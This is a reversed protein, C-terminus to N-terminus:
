PLPTRCHVVVCDLHTSLGVFALTRAGTHSVTPCSLTNSTHITSARGSLQRSEMGTPQISMRANEIMLRRSEKDRRKQVQLAMKMGLQILVYMSPALYYGLVVGTLEQESSVSGFDWGSWAYVQEEVLWLLTWVATAIGYRSILQLREEELQRNDRTLRLYRVYSSLTFVEYSLLIVANLISFANAAALYTPWEPTNLFNYCAYLVVQFTELFPFIFLATRIMRCLAPFMSQVVFWGRNWSFHLMLVKFTAMFISSLIYSTIYLSPDSNVWYQAIFLASGANCMILGSLFANVPTFIRKRSTKIVRSSNRELFVLIALVIAHIFSVGLVIWSAYSILDSQQLLTIELLLRTTNLPTETTNM